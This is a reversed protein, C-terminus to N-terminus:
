DRPSPSTYLLCGGAWIPCEKKDKWQMRRQGGHVTIMTNMPKMMKTNVTKDMSLKVRHVRNEREEESGSGRGVERERQGARGERERWDGM